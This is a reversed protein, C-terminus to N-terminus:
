SQEMVPKFMEACTDLVCTGLVTVLGLEVTHAYLPSFVNREM